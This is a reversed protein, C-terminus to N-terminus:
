EIGTFSRFFFDNMKGFFGPQTKSLESKQGNTLFELKEQNESLWDLFANSDYGKKELEYATAQPSGEAGMAKALSPAMDRTIRTVEGQTLNDPRSVQGAFGPAGQIKQYRPSIDPLAKLQDNLTKVEKVPYMQAYSVQPGAVGSAIMEEAAERRYGGEKAREKISKFSTISNKASKALLGIGGFAQIDALNKAINIAEQAAENRAAEVSVEGTLIKSASDNVLKFRISEPVNSAAKQIAENIGTENRQQTEQELNAKNIKSNSQHENGSEVRDVYSRAEDITRYRQPDSVLLEDAKAEREEGSLPIYPRLKAETSEASTITSRPHQSKNSEIENSPPRRPNRGERISDIISQQRLLDGLTQQLQPRDAVGPISVAESFTQLPSLGKKKSLEQLGSSMRSREIEKPLQEALGKGIGSGIRGFINAQPIEITRNIGDKAM